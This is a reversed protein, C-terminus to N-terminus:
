TAGGIIFAVYGAAAVPFTYVRGGSVHGLFIVDKRYHTATWTHM